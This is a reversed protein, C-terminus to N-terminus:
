KPAEALLEAGGTWVVVFKASAHEPLASSLSPRVLMVRPRADSLIM